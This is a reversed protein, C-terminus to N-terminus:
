KAGGGLRYAKLANDRLVMRALEMARASSIEEDRVMGTLAETLGRRANHSAVWGVQEWGQEVGSDFVDTGFMVKEPWAGLWMRIARALAAREAIQDMVSIDAYVNAKALLSM